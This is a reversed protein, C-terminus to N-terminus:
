RNPCRGKVATVPTRTGRPDGSRDFRKQIEHSELEDFCDVLPNKSGNLIKDITKDVYKADEDRQDDSADKFAYVDVYNYKRIEELIKEEIVASKNNTACIKTAKEKLQEKEIVVEEKLLLINLTKLLEM